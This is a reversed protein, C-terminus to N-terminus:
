ARGDLPKIELQGARQNFSVVVGTRLSDVELSRGHSEFVVGPYLTGEVVVESPFHAEFKERLGFLRVTLRELARLRKVKARSLGEVKLKRAPDRSGVRSLAADLRAVQGRVREIAQTELRIRDEALYDQGFSIATPIREESGVHRARM